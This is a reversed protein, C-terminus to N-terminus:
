LLWIIHMKLIPQKLAELHCKGYAHPVREGVWAILMSCLVWVNQGRGFGM